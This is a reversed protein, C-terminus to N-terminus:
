KRGAEKSWWSVGKSLVRETWPPNELLNSAREENVEDEPTKIWPIRIGEIEGRGRWIGDCTLQGELDHIGSQNAHKMRM